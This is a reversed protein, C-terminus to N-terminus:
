QPFRRLARRTPGAGLVARRRPRWIAGVRLQPLRRLVSNKRGIEIHCGVLLCKNSELAFLDFDPGGHHVACNCNVSFLASGSRDLKEVDIFAVLNDHSM